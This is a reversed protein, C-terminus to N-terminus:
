AVSTKADSPRGRSPESQRAVIRLPLPEVVHLAATRRRSVPRDSTLWWAGPTRGLWAVSAFCYGLSIAAASALVQFQFVGVAGATLVLVACLDLAAAATQLIFRRGGSSRTDALTIRLEGESGDCGSFSDPGAAAGSEPFLRGLDAVLTESPLGIAALYARFFARRFIGVPWHALDNNELGVLLSRKIKTSEAIAELTIGAREREARLRPGFTDRGTM